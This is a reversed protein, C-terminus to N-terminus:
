REKLQNGGGRIEQIDGLSRPLIKYNAQVYRLDHRLERALFKERESVLDSECKSLAEEVFGMVTALFAFYDGSEIHFNIREPSDNLVLTNSSSVYM